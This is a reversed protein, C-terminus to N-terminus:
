EAREDTPVFFINKAQDGKARREGADLMLHHAM